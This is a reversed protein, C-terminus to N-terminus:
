GCKFIKSTVNKKCRVVAPAVAPEEDKEEDKFAAKLEDSVVAKKKVVIKPGSALAKKDPTAAVPKSSAAVPTTKGLRSRVAVVIDADLVNMHSSVAIGLKKRLFDSLETNNMGVEKALQYVRLGM